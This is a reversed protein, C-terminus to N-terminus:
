KLCVEISLNEKGKLRIMLDDLTKRSEIVGGKIKNQGVLICGDTDKIHNGAHIRIHTFYPVDLLEPLLEKFRPSETLIVKYTGCPIATHGPIKEEKNLDRYKDELTDCFYENNIYLKGIIYSERLFIRELKLKIFSKSEDTELIEENEKQEELIMKFYNKLFDFIKKLWNSM